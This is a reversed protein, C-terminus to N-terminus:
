KPSNRETAAQRSIRSLCTNVGLPAQVPRTTVTLVAHQLVTGLEGGAALRALGGTHDAHPRGGAVSLSPLSAGDGMRSRLPSALDWIAVAVPVPHGRQAGEGAHAISELHIGIVRDRPLVRYCAIGNAQRFPGCFPRFTGCPLVPCHHAVNSNFWRSGARRAGRV